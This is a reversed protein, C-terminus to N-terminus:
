WTMIDLKLLTERSKVVEKTIVSVSRGIFEELNIKGAEFEDVVVALDSSDKSLMKINEIASDMSCGDVPVETKSSWFM